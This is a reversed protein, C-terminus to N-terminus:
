SYLLGYKSLILLNAKSMLEASLFRECFTNYKLLNVYTHDTEIPTWHGDSIIM